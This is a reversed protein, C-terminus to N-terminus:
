PRKNRRDWEAAAVALKKRARHLWVKATAETISLKEAIEKHTFGYLEKLVVVNMLRAPLGSLADELDLHTAAQSSDNDGRGYAYESATAEHVQTLEEESRRYKRVKFTTATNSVIRFFWTEFSSDGRFNPLARYAKLYAEQIVDKADELDGVMRVALALSSKYTTRFLEELSRERRGVLVRLVPSESVDEGYDELHEAM